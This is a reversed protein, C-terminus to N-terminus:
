KLAFLLKTRQLGKIFDQFDLTDTSKGTYLCVLAKEGSAVIEARTSKQNELVVAQQCIDNDKLLTLGVAKGIGFQRSTTDCGLIAHVFILHECVSEGLKEIM